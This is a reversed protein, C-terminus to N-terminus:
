LPMIKARHAVGAVGVGNNTAQAITGAVHSGHGNDDSAEPRDNVFDYGPVFQSAPLDPLVSVGTDVVAVITGDGRSEEWAQEAHIARLHWQKPYDPDNPVWAAWYIYNPEAYEIMRHGPQQALARAVEAWTGAAKELVYVRESQAFTSNLRWRLGLPQGWDGLWREIEATPVENRFNVIWSTYEGGRSPLRGLGWLLAVCFLGLALLRKM